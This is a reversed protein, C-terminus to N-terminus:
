VATTFVRIARQPLWLLVQMAMLMRLALAIIVNKITAGDAYAIFPASVSSLTKDIKGEIIGTFPATKTGISGSASFTNSLMYYGGMAKIESSSSVVKPVPTLTFFQALSDAGEKAPSALMEFSQMVKTNDFRPMLRMNGKGDTVVMFTANTIKMKTQDLGIIGSQKVGMNELTVRPTIGQNYTGTWSSTVTSSSTNATFYRLKNEVNQIQVNYPDFGNKGAAFYAAENENKNGADDQAGTEGDYLYGMEEDIDFNPRLYWQMSEPVDLIDPETATSSLSTGSIEAYRGNQKILYPAASTKEYEDAGAYKSAYEAKVDYTVYWDREKGNSLAQSEYDPLNGTNKSADFVGLEETTYEKSPDDKDTAYDSVTFKHYGPAKTATKWYHYKEVMPSSYKHIEAYIAARKPDTPGNPLPLRVIEWGHQDLLILMPKIDTAEFHFTGDGMGITQFVHEEKLFKKSTTTGVDGNHIWPASNAWAEYVHWPKEADFGAIADKQDNSLTVNRGTTKVEYSDTLKGQVTPNNKWYQEFSNVTRRATTSGDSIQELTVLQLSSISTGIIMYETADANNAPASDAASPNTVKPNDNTVGTVIHTGGNYEVAYTKLYSHFNRTKEEGDETYKYSTQTQYSSIKVHYPDLQAQSAPNNAPEIYWLWRTRESAGSNFQANWKDTGYVYLAGDGNSYPFVATRKEETMVKDANEQYFKDGAAFWLRYTKSVKDAINLSNRGDLDLLSNDVDYTVYIVNDQAGLDGVGYIRDNEDFTFTSGSLTAAKYFKYTCLPSQWKDPLALRGSYPIDSEIAVGAKDVLCFHLPLAVPTVILSVTEGAANQLTVTGTGETESVINLPDSDKMIFTESAGLTLNPSSYHLYRRTNVNQVFVAYPDNGGFYWMYPKEAKTATRKAEDTEGTAAEKDVPEGSNDDWLFKYGSDNVKVNFTRFAQLHLFKGMLEDTDYSVYIVANGEPTAHKENEKSLLTSSVADGVNYDGPFMYYYVKEGQLYESRIEEPISTYNNNLPTGEPQRITQVVAVKYSRNIIKYTYDALQCTAIGSIKDKTSNYAIAKIATATAVDGKPITVTTTAYTPTSTTPDDNNLTYYITNGEEATITVSGDTNYTFTPRLVSPAVTESAVSTLVIDYREIVVKFTGPDLIVYGDVPLISSSATPDTGDTTYRVHYGSPLGNNDSVTVVGDTVTITPADLLGSTFAWLPTGGSYFQILGERGEGNQPKNDSKSWTLWERDNGSASNLSFGTTTAKSNLGEKPSIKYPSSTNNLVFYTYDIDEAAPEDTLWVDRDGYDNQKTNNAKPFSRIVVYKNLRPNILQIYGGTVNKVVWHSYSKDHASYTVGNNNTVASATTELSTTLYQYGTSSNTTLSPWLYGQTASNNRIYYIGDAVKTQGWLSTTGLTLFTLLLYITQLVYTRPGVFMHEHVPSCINTLKHVYTGKKLIPELWLRAMSWAAELSSRAMSWAYEILIPLTHRFASIERTARKKFGYVHM